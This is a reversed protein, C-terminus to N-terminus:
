IRMLCSFAVDPCEGGATIDCSRLDVHRSFFPFLKQKPAFGFADYCYPKELLAINNESSLLRSPVRHVVNGVIPHDIESTVVRNADDLWVV